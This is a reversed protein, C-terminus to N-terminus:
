EEITTWNFKLTTRSHALTTAYLTVAVHARVRRLEQVLAACAADAHELPVAADVVRVANVRELQLVPEVYTQDNYRIAPDGGRGRELRSSM